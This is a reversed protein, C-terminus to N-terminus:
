HIRENNECKQCLWLESILDNVKVMQSQCKDCKKFDTVFQYGSSQLIQVLREFWNLDAKKEPIPIQMVRAIKREMTKM